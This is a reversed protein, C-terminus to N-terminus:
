AGRFYHLTFELETIEGTKDDVKDYYSNEITLVVGRVFEGVTQPTWYLYGLEIPAEIATSLDPLSTLALNMVSLGTPTAARYCLDCSSIVDTKRSWMLQYYRPALFWMLHSHAWMLQYCGSLM